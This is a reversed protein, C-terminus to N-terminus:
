EIVEEVQFEYKTNLKGGSSDISLLKFLYRKDGIQIIHEGLRKDTIEEGDVLYFIYLNSPSYTFHSHIGSSDQTKRLIPDLAMVVVHNWYLVGQEGKSLAYIEAMKLTPLFQPILKSGNLKISDIDKTAYSDHMQVQLTDRFLVPPDKPGLWELSWAGLIPLAFLIAGIIVLIFRARIPHSKMNSEYNERGGFVLDKFL